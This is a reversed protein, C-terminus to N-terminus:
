KMTMGLPLDTAGGPVNLCPGACMYGKSWSEKTVKIMYGSLLYSLVLKNISIIQWM